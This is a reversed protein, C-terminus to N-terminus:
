LLPTFEAKCRFNFISPYAWKEGRKEREHAQKELLVLAQYLLVFDTKMGPSCWAARLRLYPHNRIHFPLM